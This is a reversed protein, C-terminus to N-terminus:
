VSEVAQRYTRVTVTATLERAPDGNSVQVKFLNPGLPVGTWTRYRATTDAVAPVQNVFRGTLSDYNTGDSEMIRVAISSGATPAVAYGYTLTIDAHTDGGANIADGTVVGGGAAVAAAAIGSARPTPTSWPFTHTIAM